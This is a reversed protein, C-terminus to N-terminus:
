AAGGRNRRWRARGKTVYESATPVVGRPLFLIVVLFLAGFLIESEYGNSVQLTLYQQAPELILAGLVPGALTGLGGFFAMLVVALDFLPDFVFQPFAEGIFYVWLAGAMGTIFASLVLATLKVPMTRVGLGAARDEDDRIARLQLGFRSRRVQWSLAVTGAALIMALYYFPNNYTAPDWNGPAPVLLGSSGGTVGLNSAALQAIFFFAITIVVFTHRRVRLAVLGLPVAIVAAVIGGLPVLWFVAAGTLNWDKAAVVLFYAGAGYFIAHGLSLYGSYGSFLNWASAVAVFILTIVGFNTATANTIVLPYLAVLILLAAAGAAALAPRTPQRIWGTGPRITTGVVPPAAEPVKAGTSGTM